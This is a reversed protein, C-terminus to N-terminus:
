IIFEVPVHDSYQIWSEPEYIKLSSSALLNASLFVHDIHYARSKKRYMYFTKKTEKGQEEKEIHHYLSHIGIDKLEAVVDSHNWWRDSADWIANSNLDGCIIANDKPLDSKHVQLYKWLQGIYGFNPSDAQKTWVAVMTYKENVMLPLFSQLSDSQWTLSKSKNIVADLIYEGQWILPRIKHGNRAFVGIGKNKNDGRWLYDGAWSHFAKTSKGPDECEQIVLIDAGLNDVYATKNRLAGNCNWTVIKMIEKALVGIVRREQRTATSRCTPIM